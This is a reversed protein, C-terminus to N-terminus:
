HKKNVFTHQVNYIAQMQRGDAILVVIATVMVATTTTITRDSSIHRDDNDINNNNKTRRQKGIATVNCYWGAINYISGVIFSTIKKKKQQRCEIQEQITVMNSSSSSVIINNIIIYTVRISFLYIKAAVCVHTPEIGDRGGEKGHDVRGDGQGNNFIAETETQRRRMENSRKNTMERNRTM